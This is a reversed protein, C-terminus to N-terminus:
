YSKKEPFDHRKHSFTSFYQEAPFAVFSLIVLRMRKADQIVLAAFM